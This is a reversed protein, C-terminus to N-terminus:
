LRRVTVFYAGRVRHMDEDKLSTQLIAPGAQLELTFTVDTDSSQIAKTEAVASSESGEDDLLRITAEVAKMPHPADDPHRSLRFEYTGDSVVDIAWFGNIFLDDEFLHEKKWIVAGETPHWDRVTFHTPNEAPDGVLFRTYESEHSAVDKFWVGYDAYLRQVVEPFAEALDKSQGPDSAIDYLEGNVMRWKETLVAYNPYKIRGEGEPELPAKVLIDDQREVFFTREPWEHDSGELLARISTGDVVAGEPKRLGCLDILTPLWDRVCTLEEVSRPELQGPWRAFCAVRHGGEYVSGKKGRMGGGYGGSDKKSSVGGATGNDGMFIILTNEDIGTEQLTALLRGLNEDFNEIMGYFKARDDPHGLELFRQSYREAVTFPGHMANTPLYVFFPKDRNEEVFRITEDFFIDTCYGEFKEPVGDRYLTDDFYNNGEPNSIEDIGGALHCVVDQFGRFRPAYPYADGLHWKGFMGTAYGAEGFIDAMTVINPDLLQRGITVGWAGNRSSYQGSMLSARTPTCVPDVHYDDLSVGEDHLRDLNPTELWPNGHCSMDGYGQDDTVILIVNPRSEM